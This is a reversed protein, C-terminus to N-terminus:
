EDKHRRAETGKHSFRKGNKMKGKENKMRMGGKM